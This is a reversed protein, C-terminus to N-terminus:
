EKTNLPLLRTAPVGVAISHAPVDSIVVANAGVQAGDGVEVDGILKAGAWLTVDDGIAPRGMGTTVGQCITVRDGIRTLKGIVAGSGHYFAVGGGIEALPSIDIHTVLKAFAHVVEAPLRMRHKALYHSLRYLFTAQVGGDLALLGLLYGYSLRRRRGSPLKRKEAHKHRIDAKFRTELPSKIVLYTVLVLLLYALLGLVVPGLWILALDRASVTAQSVAPAV